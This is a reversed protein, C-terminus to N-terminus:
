ILYKNHKKIQELIELAFEDYLFNVRYELIEKIHRYDMMRMKVKILNDNSAESAVPHQRNAM